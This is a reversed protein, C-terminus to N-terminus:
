RSQVVRALALLQSSIRLGARAAQQPSIDFKVKKGDIRFGIM